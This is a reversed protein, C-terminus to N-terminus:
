AAAVAPEPAPARLRYPAPDFRRTRLRFTLTSHPWQLSNHGNEDLYWSRCGGTNWVTTALDAQIERNYAQQEGAGIEVSALRRDRMVRLADAVYAIGAEHMLIVSTSGLNTNPGYLFFLNPFGSVTAGLYANAGGRWADSLRVGGRGRLRQAFPWETTRFGTGFIVADVEREAGDATVISRERLEAIRDTVLEVNPQTLAPYWDSSVCIRKCGMRYEPTVKARLKPDRIQLRMQAKAIAEAVVMLSPRKFGPVFSEREAWILTRVLKQVAPAARYLRREARTLRRDLRPYIWPPTRQFVHLRGVRPQIAPVIQISSAGTGVVAVRRGDLAAAHDWRASHFMPGAFREMGEIAPISPESLPGPSAVLVDATETGAATEITWRQADDDWSADTVEANLRVHPTVGFEEACRRLYALIEPQPSFSRSWDPNPAFSYSYLHSPVDCALGPYTNDRWTGGIEGARELVVFDDLGMQKLRIAMGIGGFGSGVIAVRM